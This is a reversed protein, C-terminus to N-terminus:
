KVGSSFTRRTLLCAPFSMRKSNPNSSVCILRLTRCSDPPCCCRTAIARASTESAGTMKASSGVPFRSSCVAPSMMAMKFFILFIIQIPNLLAILFSNLCVKKTPDEFLGIYPFILTMGGCLLVIFPLLIWIGYESLFATNSFLCYDLYLLASLGLCTLWIVTAQKFNARFLRFFHFVLDTDEGKLLRHWMTALATLSAGITLIPLCCVIFLTNLIIIDTLRTLTKVLRGDLSFLKQM